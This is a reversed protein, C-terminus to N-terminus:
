QLTPESTVRAEDILDQREKPTLMRLAMLGARMIASASIRRGKLLSEAQLTKLWQDLDASLYLNERRKGPRQSTV